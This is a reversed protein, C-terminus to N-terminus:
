RDSGGNPTGPPGYGRTADDLVLVWDGEGPPAFERSSGTPFEGAGQATGTRPDFWWAAVRTGCIKTLDVTITRATPMYAIVTGGDSTRAAALFDLGRFEGLGGTVVEHADDPLLHFWPRSTFLARLHVMDRSGQSELAEQWGPDFLWIPRNGFIQGCAGCLLAWYAQRRIQVASANHEGEYASGKLFFPRVPSRHYDALLHRPVIGYTYTNHLDLWGGRGFDEAPPREPAGDATCLHRQDFEKLGEVFADIHDLVPRPDRDGGVLWLINDFSAYRRGVMRGWERCGAVGAAQVEEIWGEDTEALGLYLPALLVQIGCAGARRIVWDAHAFYAENPQALAGGAGFPLDGYSNAPGKFKHEILNVVITNVGKAARDALYREAEERSLAVILSWAAEGHLLFPVGRGDVLHRRNPSVRLPYAPSPTEAAVRSM